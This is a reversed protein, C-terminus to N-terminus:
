ASRVQQEPRSSAQGRFLDGQVPKSVRRAEPRPVQARLEHFRELFRQSDETIIGRLTREANPLLLRWDQQVLELSPLEYPIPPPGVRFFVARDFGLAGVELILAAMDAYKVANTGPDLPGEWVLKLVKRQLAAEKARLSEGLWRKVPTSIDGMLAEHVDHLLGSAQEQKSFGWFEVIRSVLVSHQAVSYLMLTSDEPINGTYRCIRALTQACRELSVCQPDNLDILPGQGMLIQTM